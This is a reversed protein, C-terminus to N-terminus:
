VAYQISAVELNRYELQYPLLPPTQYPVPLAWLRIAPAILIDKSVMITGLGCILPGTVCTFLAYSVSDM